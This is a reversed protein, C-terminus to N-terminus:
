EDEPRESNHSRGGINKRVDVNRHDADDPRVVAKRGLVHRLTNRGRIFTRQRRVDVVDLVDLRLRKGAYRDDLDKEVWAGVDIAGDSLGGRIRGRHQAVQRWARQRRVDDDIVGRRHRDQLEAQRALRKGFLLEIVEAVAEDARLESGHLARRHGQREAALNALDHDLEIRARQLCLSQSRDVDDVGDVRLVQDQWATGCFDARAFVVDLHVAARLCESREVIQRDLGHVAADDVHAVYSVDDIAKCRLRIDHAASPLRAASRVMSFLPLVDVSM